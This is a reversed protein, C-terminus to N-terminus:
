LARTARGSMLTVLMAAVCAVVGGSLVFALTVVLPMLARGVLTFGYAVVLTGVVASVLATLGFVAAAFREM